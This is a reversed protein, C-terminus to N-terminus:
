KLLSILDTIDEQTYEGAKKHFYGKRNIVLLGYCTKHQSFFKNLFMSNVDDFHNKLDIIGKSKEADSYIFITRVNVLEMKSYFTTWWQISKNLDKYNNYECSSQPQTFNVIMFEESNWNYNEQVFKLESETLQGESEKITLKNFSSFGIALILLVLFKKM